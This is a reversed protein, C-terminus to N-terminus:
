LLTTPVAHLIPYYPQHFNYGLNNHEMEQVPQFIPNAQEARGDAKDRGLLTSRMGIGRGLYRLPGFQSGQPAFQSKQVPGSGCSHRCHLSPKSNSKRMSQAATHGCPCHAPRASRVHGQTALSSQSSPAGSRVPPLKGPPASSKDGFMCLERVAVSKRKPGGKRFQYPLNLAGLYGAPARISLQSSQSEEQRFQMALQFLLQVSHVSLSHPGVADSPSPDFPSPRLEDRTEQFFVFCLNKYIEFLTKLPMGHGHLTQAKPVIASGVRDSRALQRDAPVCQLDQVLPCPRALTQLPAVWSVEALAGAVKATDLALVM